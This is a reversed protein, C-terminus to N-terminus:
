GGPHGPSPPRETRAPTQPLSFGRVTATFGLVAPELPDSAGSNVPGVRITPVTVLKEGFELGQLFTLVGEFDSEGRLEVEVAVIEEGLVVAPRTEIQSLHVTARRAHERVYQTLAASATVEDLAVFIQEETDSFLRHAQEQHADYEAREQLVQLERALLGRQVALDDAQRSLVAVYPKVAFQLVLIPVAITAGLRLARNDRHTLSM